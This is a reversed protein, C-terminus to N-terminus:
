SSETNTRHRLEYKILASGAFNSILAWIWTLAKPKSFTISEDSQAAKVLLPLCLSDRTSEADQPQSGITIM